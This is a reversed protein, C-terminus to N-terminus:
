HSVQTVTITERDINSLDFIRNRFSIRFSTPSLSRIIHVGSLEGRMGFHGAMESLDVERVSVVRACCAEVGYRVEEILITSSIESTLVALRFRRSRSSDQSSNPVPLHDGTELQTVWAYHDHQKRLRTSIEVQPALSPANPPRLTMHFENSVVEIKRAGGSVPDTGKVFVWRLRYTGDITNVWHDPSMYRELNPPWFPLSERYSEGQKFGARECGMVVGWSVAEWKEKGKKGVVKKEANPLCMGSTIPGSTTNVLVFGIRAFYSQDGRGVSIETSDTRMLPLAAESQSLTKCAGLFCLCLTAIGARQIMCYSSPRTVFVQYGNLRARDVDPLRPRSSAEAKPKTYGLYDISLYQGFYEV